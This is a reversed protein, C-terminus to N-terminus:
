LHDICTITIDRGPFQHQTYGSVLTCSTDANWTEKWLISTSKLASYISSNLCCQTGRSCDQPIGSHKRLKREANSHRIIGTTWYQKPM